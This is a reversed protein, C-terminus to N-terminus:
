IIMQWGAGNLLLLITDIVGETWIHDAYKIQAGLACSYFANLELELHPLFLM